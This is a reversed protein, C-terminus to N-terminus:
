PLVPWGGGVPYLSVGSDATISIIKTFRKDSDASACLRKADCFYEEIAGDRCPTMRRGFIVSLQKARLKELNTMLYWPKDQENRWLVAVHQRVPKLKRYEVTQWFL